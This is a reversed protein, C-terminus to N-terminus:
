KECIVSYLFDITEESQEYLPKGFTWLYLKNGGAEFAIFQNNIGVMNHLCGLKVMCNLIDELTLTSVIVKTDSVLEQIRETLQQLKTMPIPLYILGEM